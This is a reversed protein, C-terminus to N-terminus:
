LSKLHPGPGRSGRRPCQWRGGDRCRSCRGARHGGGSDTTSLAPCCTGTAPAGCRGPSAATSRRLGPGRQWLGMGDPIIGGARVVRDQEPVGPSEPSGTSGTGPSLGAGGLRPAGSVRGRAHPPPLLPQQAKGARVAGGARRPATKLKILLRWGGQSAAGRPQLLAPRGALLRAQSETDGPDCHSSPSPHHPLFQTDRPHQTM